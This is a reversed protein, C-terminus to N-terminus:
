KPRTLLAVAEEASGVKLLQPYDEEAVRLPPQAYGEPLFNIHLVRNFRHCIQIMGVGKNEFTHHKHLSIKRMSANLGNTDNRDLVVFADIVM